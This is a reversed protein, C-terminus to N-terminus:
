KYQSFHMTAYVCGNKSNIAEYVGFNTFNGVMIAYHTPSNVLAVFAASRSEYCRALNEGVRTAGPSQGWIYDSFSPGSNPAYHAWYDQDIMDNTKKNASSSLRKDYALVPLNKSARLNNVAQLYYNEADTQVSITTASNNAANAVPSSALDTFIPSVLLGIVIGVAIYYRSRRLINVLSPKRKSAKHSYLVEEAGSNKPVLFGSTYINGM